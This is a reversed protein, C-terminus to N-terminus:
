YDIIYVTIGYDLLDLLDEIFVNSKVIITDLEFSGIDDYFDSEVIELETGLIKNVKKLVKESEQDIQNFAILIDNDGFYIM